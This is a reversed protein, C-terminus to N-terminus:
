GAFLRAGCDAPGLWRVRGGQSRETAAFFGRSVAPRAGSAEHAGVAFGSESRM